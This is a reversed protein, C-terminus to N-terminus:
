VIYAADVWSAYDSGASTGINWKAADSSGLVRAFSPRAAGTSGSGYTNYEAFYVHDTREDGTNWVSWM